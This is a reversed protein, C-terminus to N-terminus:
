VALFPREKLQLVAVNICPQETVFQALYAAPINGVLLGLLSPQSKKYFYVFLPEFPKLGQAAFVTQGDQAVRVREYLAPRLCLLESRAAVGKGVVKVHLEETVAHVARFRALLYVALHEGM